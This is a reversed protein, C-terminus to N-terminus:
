EPSTSLRGLRRERREIARERERLDLERERLRLSEEYERLSAEGPSLTRGRSRSTRTVRSACASYGPRGGSTTTLALQIPHSVDRVLEVRNGTHLWVTRASEEVRSEGDSTHEWRTSVTIGLGESSRGVLEPTLILTGEDGLDLTLQREFGNDVDRVVHSVQDHGLDVSIQLDHARAGPVAALLSLLSFLIRM